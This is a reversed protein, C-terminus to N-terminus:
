GPKAQREGSGYFVKPPVELSRLPSPFLDERGISPVIPFALTGLGPMVEWLLQFPEAGCQM